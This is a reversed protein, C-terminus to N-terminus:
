HFRIKAKGPDAAVNPLLEFRQTSQLTVNFLLRTRAYSGGELKNQSNINNCHSSIYREVLSGLWLLSLAKTDFFNQLRKWKSKSKSSHQMQHFQHFTNPINWWNLHAFIYMVTVMNPHGMCERTLILLHPANNDGKQSMQPYREKPLPSCVISM